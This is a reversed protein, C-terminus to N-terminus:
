ISESVSIEFRAQPTEKPFEIELLDTKQNPPFNATSSFRPVLNDATQVALSGHVLNDTDTPPFMM